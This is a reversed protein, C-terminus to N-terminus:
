EKSAARRGRWYVATWVLIPVVGSAVVLAPGASVGYWALGHFVILELWILACGLWIFVRAAIGRGRWLYAGWGALALAPLTVTAITLLERAFVDPTRLFCYETHLAGSDGPTGQETSTAALIVYWEGRASEGLAASTFGCTVEASEKGPVTVQETCLHQYGYGSDGTPRVTDLNVTWAVAQESQNALTVAIQGGEDPVVTPCTMEPFPPDHVGFDPPMDIISTLVRDVFPGALVFAGIMWAVTATLFLLIPLSRRPADLMPNEGTHHTM